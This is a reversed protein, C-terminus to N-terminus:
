APAGAPVADLLSRYEALFADAGLGFARPVAAAGHQRAVARILGCGVRYALRQPGFVLALYSERDRPGPGALAAETARFAAVHARLATADALVAYDGFMDHVGGRAVRLALPAYTAFGENHLWLHFYARWDAPTRIAALPPIAHTREYLCHCAEHILFYWVEAPDALYAACNLNLCVTDQLGIGMDYGVIPYVALTDLGAGPALAHLAEAAEALWPPAQAPLAALLARIAPLRETTHMLGYFPSPAGARAADLEAPGITEGARAAHAVVAQYAPHALVAAADVRGDLYDLFREAGSGDIRM